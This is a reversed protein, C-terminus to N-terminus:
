RCSRCSRTPTPSRSTFSRSCSSSPRRSEALLRWGVGRNLLLPASRWAGSFYVIPVLLTAAFLGRFMLIEGLPLEANALKIMTDNILFLLNCATIAIIGRVNERFPTTMRLGPSPLLPFRSDAAARPNIGSM